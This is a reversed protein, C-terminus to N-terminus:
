GIPIAALEERPRELARGMVAHGNNGNRNLRSLSKVLARVLEMNTVVPIGFEAAKRRILYEDRLIGRDDEGARPINIVLRVEKSLLYDLINPKSKESVKHLMRCGIGSQV